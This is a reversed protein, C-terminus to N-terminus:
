RFFIKKESLEKDAVKQFEKENEELRNMALAMINIGSLSLIVVITLEALFKLIM